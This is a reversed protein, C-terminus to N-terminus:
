SEIVVLHNRAARIKKIEGDKDPKSDYNNPFGGIRVYGSWDDGPSGISERSQVEVTEPSTFADVAPLKLTTFILSGDKTLVKRRADIRGNLFAQAVALSYTKSQQALPKVNEASM